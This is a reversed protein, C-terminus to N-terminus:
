ASVSSLLTDEVGEMENTHTAARMDFLGGHAFQRPFASFM